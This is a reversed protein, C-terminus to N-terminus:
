PSFNVGVHIHRYPDWVHIILLCFVKDLFKPNVTAGEGRVGLGPM